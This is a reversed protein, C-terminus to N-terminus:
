PEARFRSCGTIGIVSEKGETAGIRVIWGLVKHITKQKTRYDGTRESKGSGLVKDELALM